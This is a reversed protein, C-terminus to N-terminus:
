LLSSSLRKYKRWWQPMRIFLNISVEVFPHFYIKIRSSKWDRPFLIMYILMCWYLPASDPLTLNGLEKRWSFSCLLYKHCLYIYDRSIQMYICVYNQIEKIVTRHEALQNNVIYTLMLIAHINYIHICVCKSISKQIDREIYYIYEITETACLVWQLFCNATM